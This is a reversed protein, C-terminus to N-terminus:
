RASALAALKPKKPSQPQPKPASRDERAVLRKHKKMDAAAVQVKAGGRRSTYENGDTPGVHPPDRGLYPRGIGFESGHADVWKWLIETSTWREARNAGKVSVIDAALGHGYGGRLSRGHFSRNSAAKLGSAISQRYDDRFASTIGPSLGAAEAARLTNFLKLRFSRDMGGIVYEMMPMGAKEAAKPDKWGFDEDVLKTFSRTVTVMKGKRKVTVQRRETEKISDEKPTRQYLAWLYQDACNEAILCAEPLEIPSVAAKVDNSMPDATNATAVQVPAPEPPLSPESLAIVVIPKEEQPVAALETATETVAAASTETPSSDPLAAVVIPKEERAVVTPESATETVSAASIEPETVAAVATAVISVAAAAAGDSVVAGNGMVTAPPMAATAAGDSVVAANGTATPQPAVVLAASVPLAPARLEAIPLAGSNEISATVLVALRAVVGGALVILGCVVAALTVFRRSKM